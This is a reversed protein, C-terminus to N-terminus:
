NGHRNCGNNPAHHKLLRLLGEPHPLASCSFSSRFAAATPAGPRGRKSRLPSPEGSISVIAAAVHAASALCSAAHAAAASAGTTAAHAASAGAAAAHAASAVALHLAAAAHAASPRCCPWPLLAHLRQLRGLLLPSDM